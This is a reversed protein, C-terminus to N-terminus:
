SYVWSEDALSVFINAQKGMFSHFQQALPPPRACSPPPAQYAQKLTVTPTAPESVPEASKRRKGKRRRGNEM